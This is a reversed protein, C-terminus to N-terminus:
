MSVILVGDRDRLNEIQLPFERKEQRAISPPSELSSSLSLHGFLDWTGPAGLVVEQNCLNSQAQAVKHSNKDKEVLTMVLIFVIIFLDHLCILTIFIFLQLKFAM